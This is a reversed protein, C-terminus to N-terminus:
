NEKSLEELLADAYIVSMKAVYRVYHIDFHFETEKPLGLKKFIFDISVDESSRSLEAQMAMASVYERKTLGTYINVRADIRDSEEESIPYAPKNGNKM